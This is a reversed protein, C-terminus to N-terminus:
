ALRPAPAAPPVEIAQPPLGLKARDVMERYAAELHRAYRRMDFVPGSDRAAALRARLGRLEAPDRGLRIATEEYEHASGTVLEPLGLGRLLSAAMRGCFSEGQRTLVPLGAFLADSATTGANFPLTDLFLDAVRYRGLYEAM